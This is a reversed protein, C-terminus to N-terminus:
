VQAHLLHVPPHHPPHLLSTSCVSPVYGTEAAVSAISPQPPCAHARLTPLASVLPCAHHTPTPQSCAHGSFVDRQGGPALTRVLWPKRARSPTPTTNPPCHPPVRTPLHGDLSGQSCYGGCAAPLAVSPYWGPNWCCLSPCVLTNRRTQAKVQQLTCRLRRGGNCRQVLVSSSAHAPPAQPSTGWCARGILPPPSPPPPPPVM